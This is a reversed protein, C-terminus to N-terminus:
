LDEMGSKDYEETMRNSTLIASEKRGKSLWDVGDLDNPM